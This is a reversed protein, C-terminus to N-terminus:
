ADAKDAGQHHPQAHRTSDSRSTQHSPPRWMPWFPAGGPLHFARRPTYGHRLYLDRAGTSSAELYAALGDRDLLDHHDRLLASGRGTCQVAPAVSLFALHHHPEKPHHADFVADLVEFRETYPGCAAALRREYDEVFPMPQDRHFWVAVASRDELVRVRGAGAMAHDVWIKFQAALVARREGPKPVLYATPALHYFTAAILMAIGDLDDRTADVIRPPGSM